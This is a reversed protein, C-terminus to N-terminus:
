YRLQLLSPKVVVSHHKPSEFVISFSKVTYVIEGINVQWSNPNSHELCKIENM